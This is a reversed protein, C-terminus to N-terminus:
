LNAKLAALASKAQEVKARLAKEEEAMADIKARHEKALSEMTSEAKKVKDLLEAVKRTTDSKVEAITVKSEKVANDIDVQISEREKQLEEKAVNQANAAEKEATAVKQKVDVLVNESLQIYDKLGNLEAQKAVMIKTIESLTKQSSNVMQLIEPLRTFLKAFRAIKEGDTILLELDKITEM